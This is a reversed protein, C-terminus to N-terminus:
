CIGFEASPLLYYFDLNLYIFYLKFYLFILSILFKLFFGLFLCMNIVSHFLLCFYVIPCNCTFSHFQFIKRVGYVPDKGLLCIFSLLCMFLHEINSIIFSICMLVVILYSRVKDSYNDSNLFCSTNILM